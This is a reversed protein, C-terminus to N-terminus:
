ALTQTAAARGFAKGGASPCLLLLSSRAATVWMLFTDLTARILSGTRIGHALVDLFGHHKDCQREEDVPQKCPQEEAQAPAPARADPAANPAAYM